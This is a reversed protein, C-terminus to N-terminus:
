CISLVKCGVTLLLIPILAGIVVTLCGGCGVCGIIWGVRKDVGLKSVVKGALGSPTINALRDATRNVASGPGGARALGLQRSNDHERRLDDAM